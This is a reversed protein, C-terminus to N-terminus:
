EKQDKDFERIFILSIGTNRIEHYVIDYTENNFVKLQKNGSETLNYVVVIDGRFNDSGAYAGSEGSNIDMGGGVEISLRDDMLSKSIRFDMATRTQGSGTSFDSYSQLGVNIDVGPIVQSAFRNLQSALIANVSNSLATTAILNENVDGSGSEPIFGGLVLLGFVQRNLEAEYEPQELRSLKNSLAPYNAKENEPLDLSFSIEPEELSGRIIIGVEYPLAKRYLVKESEGIEHGILGLSSTQITYLATIDLDGNKPDGTWTITSGQKINFRKKVLDYFSLQYYGQEIQYSGSMDMNKTRDMEFKLNANGSVQIYDGSNADVVVKLVAREELTLTSVLNFEPLSAVVSDYVSQIRNVNISDPNEPDVFEVVGEGTVLELNQQPMIYTMATTDQVTLDATIDTQNPKGKISIDSSIVLNGQLQYEEKPPNDILWYDDAKVTLDYEFNEYDKTLLQGDLILPNEKQDYITFNQLSVGSNDLNIVENKMLLTTRPQHSTVLVNEFALQGNYEPTKLPGSVDIAGTVKGSIKELYEAFFVDFVQLESVDIDVKADVMGSARQYNGDLSIRNAASELKFTLPMQDGESVARAKINMPPSDKLALNEIRTQLNIKNDAKVYAFLANLSGSSILTSDVPLLYNLKPLDTDELTLEFGNLDGDIQIRTLPGSLLYDDFTLNGQQYIIPNTTPVEFREGFGVLTDVYVLLDNETLRARTDLGLLTVSDKILSFQSRIISDGNSMLFNLDGVGLNSYQINAMNIAGEIEHEAIRSNIGLTDFSIGFGSFFGTGATFTISQAQEQYNANIDIESGLEIGSTVLSFPKDSTVRLNFEFSRNGSPQNKETQGRDLLLDRILDPAEQLDFNAELLGRLNDSYIELRSSSDALTGALSLSDITYDTSQGKFSLGSSKLTAEMREPAQAYASVLDASVLLTSDPGLFKGLKFQEFTTQANVMLEMEDLMVESQVSLGFEPDNIVIDANVLNDLYSGELQISDIEVQQFGIRHVIAEAELNTNDGYWGELVLDFDTSGLMPQGLLKGLELTGAAIQVGNFELMNPTYGANGQLDITGFTSSIQSELDFSTQSGSSALQFELDPPLNIGSIFPAIYETVEPNLLVDAKFSEWAMSDPRFVNHVVGSASLHSELAELTFDEVGASGSDLKGQFQLAAKPLIKLEEMLSDSLFMSLDQHDLQMGLDVNLRAQDMEDMLTVWSHYNADVEFLLQSSDTSIDFDEFHAHNLGVGLTGSAENLKFTSLAFSLDNLALHLSDESLIIDSLNLRADELDLHQPDFKSKKEISGFHYSINHDTLDVQKLNIKFGTGFNLPPLGEGESPEPEKISLLNLDLGALSLLELDITEPQTVLEFQNIDLNALSLSLNIGGPESNYLFNINAFHVRGILLSFSSQELTDTEPDESSFADIIFQINLGEETEELVGRTDELGIYNIALNGAMLGMLDPLAAIKGAELIVKEAPDKVILGKISVGEFVSLQIRDITIESGVTESLNQSVKRTIVKQVPPLHIVVLLLLLIAV